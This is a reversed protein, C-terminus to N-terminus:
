DSLDGAMCSRFVMDGFRQMETEGGDTHNLLADLGTPDGMDDLAKASMDAFRDQERINAFDLRLVDDASGGSLHTINAFQQFGGEGQVKVADCEASIEGQRSAAWNQLASKSFCPFPLMVAIIVLFRFM